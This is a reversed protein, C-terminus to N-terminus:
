LVEGLIHWTLFFEGGIPININKILCQYCFKIFTTSYEIKMLNFGFWVLKKWLINFHQWSYQQSVLLM